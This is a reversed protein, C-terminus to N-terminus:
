IRNEKGTWNALHHKGHYAAVSVAHPKAPLAGDVQEEKWAVKDVNGIRNTEYPEHQAINHAKCVRRAEVLIHGPCPVIKLLGRM